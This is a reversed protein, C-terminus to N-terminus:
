PQEHHSSSHPQSFWRHYWLQISDPLFGSKVYVRLARRNRGQTVVRLRELREQRGWDLVAAALQGGLGHGQAAADVALIGLSGESASKRHATAYGAPGSGLDAVFVADAWGRCSKEIWAQYMRGCADDPFGPDAYFRSDRHSVRALESLAPIDQERALRVAGGPTANQMAAAGAELTVRADVLRFGRAEATRLTLPDDLDALFYLCDIRQDRCWREAEGADEPTLRGATLRAIRLRFFDSDWSLYECLDRPAASM